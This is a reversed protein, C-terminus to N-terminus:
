PNKAEPVEKTLGAAKAKETVEATIDVTEAFAYLPPFVTNLVVDLNRAKAVELAIPKLENRFDNIMKLRDAQISQAAKAREQQYQTELERNTLIIKKKEEENLEEGAEAVTKNMLAQLNQQTKQLSSNLETGRNELTVRIYDLVGLEQAVADLDIVAVGGEAKVSSTFSLGGTLVLMLPVLKKM